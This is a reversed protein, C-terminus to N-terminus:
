GRIYDVYLYSPSTGSASLIINGTGTTRQLSLVFTKDETADATYEAESHKSWLTATTPAAIRRTEVITGTVTDERIVCIFADTAVSVAFGFDATVKYIRNIVVPAVVTMIETETTTIAASVATAIETNIREGPVKGAIITEGASVM